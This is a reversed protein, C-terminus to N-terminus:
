GKPVFSVSYMLYRNYLYLYLYLYLYPYPNARAIDAYFGIHICRRRLHM